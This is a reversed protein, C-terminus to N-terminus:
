RAARRRWAKLTENFALGVRAPSADEIAIRAGGPGRLHTYGSERLIARKTETQAFVAEDPLGRGLRAGFAEYDMKTPRSPKLVAPAAVSAPPVWAREYAADATARAWGEALLAQQADDSPPPEFGARRCAEWFERADGARFAKAVAAPMGDWPAAAAKVTPVVAAVAVPAAFTPAPAAATPLSATPVAAASLTPAALVTVAAAPDAAFPLSLQVPVGEPVARLAAARSPGAALLAALLASLVILVPRAAM